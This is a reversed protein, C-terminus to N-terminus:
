PHKSRVLESSRWNRINGFTKVDSRQVLIDLAANIIAITEEDNVGHHEGLEQTTKAVILAVKRRQGFPLQSLLREALDGDSIEALVDAESAICKSNRSLAINGCLACVAHEM